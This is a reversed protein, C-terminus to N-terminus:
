QFRATSGLAASVPVCGHECLNRSKEQWEWDKFQLLGQRQSLEIGLESPAINSSTTPLPLAPPSQITLESLFYDLTM